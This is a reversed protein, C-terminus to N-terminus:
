DKASASENKRGYILLLAALLLLIVGLVLLSGEPGDAQKVRCEELVWVRRDKVHPYALRLIRFDCTWRDPGMRCTLALEAAGRVM